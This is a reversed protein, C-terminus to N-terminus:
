AKKYYEIQNGAMKFVRNVLETRDNESMRSFNRALSIKEQLFKKNEAGTILVSVPLSWVFKLAEEISLHDPILPDDTEWQVKDIRKKVKFFRGDALTKMALVGLQRDLVTPLVNKIFSHFHSDIVNIPMQVTEFFDKESTQDLMRQHAFPNAHGTFGIHKVKGEAKAKEFVELVENKIRNDVDEPTQLSHVQWLDVYDCKLRKLSGELHQLATAGDRATSKTMIFVDDRFNPVLYRGYRKESGGSDYSEATDFFRIGGEIATEIVEQADKETTWGVHFGGLGLMTVNEGTKGLKRLPLIEGWKDNKSGALNPFPVMLSGTLLALHKLFERREYM